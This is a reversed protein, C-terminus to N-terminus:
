TQPGTLGYKEAIRTLEARGVGNLVGDILIDDTALANRRFKRKQKETSDWNMYDDHVRQLDALLLVDIKGPYMKGDSILSGVGGGTFPTIYAKEAEADSILAGIACRRGDSTRYSCFGTNTIARKTMAFLHTCVADFAEQNTSVNLNAATM